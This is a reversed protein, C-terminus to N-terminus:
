DALRFVCRSSGAVKRREDTRVIAGMRELEKRATRLRSGSCPCGAYYAALAIDYDTFGEPGPLYARILHVVWRQSEAVNKDAAFAAAWSTDLDDLRAYAKSTDKM